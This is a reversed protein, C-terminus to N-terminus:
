EAYYRAMPGGDDGAIDIRSFYHHEGGVLPLSTVIGIGGSFRGAFFQSYGAFSQDLLLEDAGITSGAYPNTYLKAEAPPDPDTFSRGQEHVPYFTNAVRFGSLFDGGSPISSQLTITWASLDSVDAVALVPLLNTDVDMSDAVLPFVLKTGVIAGRTGSILIPRTEVADDMATFSGISNDAAVRTYRSYLTGFGTKGSCVHIADDPGTLMDELIWPSAHDPTVDLTSGFVGGAIVQVRVTRVGPTEETTYAAVFQGTIPRRALRIPHWSGGGYIDSPGGSAVSSWTNTAPNYVDLALGGPGAYLVWLKSGDSYTDALELWAGLGSSLVSRTTVASWPGAGLNQGKWVELGDNTVTSLRRNILVYINNGIRAPRGNPFLRLPDPNGTSTILYPGNIAPLPM